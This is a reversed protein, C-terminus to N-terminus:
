KHRIGNIEEITELGIRYLIGYGVVTFFSFNLNWISYLAYNIAFGSVFINIVWRITDDKLKKWDIKEVWEEIEKQVPHFWKMM